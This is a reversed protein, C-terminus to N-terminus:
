IGKFENNVMKHKLDRDSINTVTLPWPIDLVPDNYLLGGELGPSYLDSHFYILEVHEQLTQFGHAFGAPIYLALQNDESLEVSVWQLFTESNERIDVIVDFIKGKLCKVIKGECKPPFQFHLGRVSGIERTISHNVQKISFNIGSAELENQCFVRGFAGRNDSFMNPSLLKPGEIPLATIEM